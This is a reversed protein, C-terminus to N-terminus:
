PSSGSSSSIERIVRDDPGRARPQRPFVQPDDRLIYSNIMSIFVMTARRVKANEQTDQMGNLLEIVTRQGHGHIHGYGHM